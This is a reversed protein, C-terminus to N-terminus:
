RPALHQRRARRLAAGDASRRKRVTAAARATARVATRQLRQSSRHKLRTQQAILSVGQDDM